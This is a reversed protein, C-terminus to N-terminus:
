LHSGAFRVGIGAYRRRGSVSAIAADEEDVIGQLNDIIEQLDRMNMKTFSQGNFNVSQNPGSVLILMAAQAAELTQRAISKVTAATPNPFVEVNGFVETKRDDDSEYAFTVLYTGATLESTQSATIVLDFEGNEGEEATYSKLVAGRFHITLTWDDSPYDSDSLTVRLTDGAVFSSPFETLSEVPM